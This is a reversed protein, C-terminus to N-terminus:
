PQKITKLFQPYKKENFEPQFKDISQTTRRRLTKFNDGKVHTKRIYAIKKKVFFDNCHSMASFAAM